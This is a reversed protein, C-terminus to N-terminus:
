GARTAGARCRRGVFGKPLNDWEPKYIAFGALMDCAILRGNVRVHALTRGYKDKGHRRLTIKGKLLEAMRAKSAKGDGPACDRGARCHGPMEPADIGIIRVSTRGCKITDGDIAICALALALIM